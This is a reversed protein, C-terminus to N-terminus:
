SNLFKKFHKISVTYYRTGCPYGPWPGCGDNKDQSKDMLEKINETSKKVSNKEPTTVEVSIKNETKEKKVEVGNKNCSNFLSLIIGIFGLFGIDVFKKIDKKDAGTKTLLKKIKM